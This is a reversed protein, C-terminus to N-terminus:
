FSVSQFNIRYILFIFAVSSSGCLASPLTQIGGERGGERSEGEGRRKRVKESV